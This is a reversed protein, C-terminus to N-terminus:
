ISLIIMKITSIYYTNTFQQMPSINRISEWKKALRHGSVLINTGGVVLEMAGVGKRFKKNKNAKIDFILVGM